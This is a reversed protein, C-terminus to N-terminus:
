AIGRDMKMRRMREVNFHVEEFILDSAKKEIYGVIREPATWSDEPQQLFFQMTQEAIFVSDEDSLEYGTEILKQRLRSLRSPKLGEIAGFLRCANIFRHITEDVGGDVAQM